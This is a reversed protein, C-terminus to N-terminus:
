LGALLQPRTQRLFMVVLATVIGEVVIVPIHLLGLTIIASREVTADLHPPITYYLFLIFLAVSVATAIAGASFGFLATRGKSPNASRAQMHFIMASLLSPLGIIIGNVGLTTLGGHGFMVAQFFLAVLIAPFAFYGLVAGLLGSLVLHVSAPPIPIQILSASFFAAALLAAKPIHERPDGRQKIKWICFAAAAASVAYGAVTFPLPLIGDPVHM